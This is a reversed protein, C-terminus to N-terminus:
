LLGESRYWDITSRIGEAVPVQARFGLVSEAKGTDCEISKTFFDMSRRFVIPKIGIMNCLTEVAGFALTVPKAPIKIRPEPVDLTKAALSVVDKLATPGEGAILFIQGNAAQSTMAAEFAHCLDDIYIMHKRTTGPSVIVGKEVMKYFKVKSFNGPGYVQAPRIIVLSLGHQEAYRRAAQEGECKTTEYKDNPQPSYPTTESYPPPHAETAVGVTSCHVVRDVGENKAAELVNLVGQINVERYDDWTKDPHNFLAALHFIGDVGRVAKQVQQLDRIDAIRITAGRQELSRAQDRDRVIAVVSHSSDMLRHALNKGIFGGAGTVAFRSATGKKNNDQSSL